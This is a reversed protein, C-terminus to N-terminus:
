GSSMMSTKSLPMSLLFGAGITSGDYFMEFDVEQSHGGGGLLEWLLVLTRILRSWSLPSFTEHVNLGATGSLSPSNVYAGTATVDPRAATAVADLFMSFIEVFGIHQRTFSYRITFKSDLEDTIVGQDDQIGTLGDGHALLLTSTSNIADILGVTSNPTGAVPNQKPRFKLFGVQRNDIFLGAYMSPVYQPRIVPKAAM